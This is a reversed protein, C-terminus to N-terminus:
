DSHNTCRIKFHTVLCLIHIVYQGETTLMKEYLQMYNEAGFQM